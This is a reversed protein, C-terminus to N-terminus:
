KVSAMMDAMRKTRKPTQEAWNSKLMEKSAGKYDANRICALMNKFKSVGVFGLQFTMATVIDKVEQPSDKGILKEVNKRALAIDGALLTEAQGKTIPTANKTTRHGYGITPYGESCLYVTSRFGEESKLTATLDMANVTLSLLLLLITKM